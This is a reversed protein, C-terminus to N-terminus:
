VEIDVEACAVLAKIHNSETHQEGMHLCHSLTSSCIKACENCIVVCMDILSSQASARQQGKNIEHSTMQTM